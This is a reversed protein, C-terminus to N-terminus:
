DWWSMMVKLSDIFEEFWLQEMEFDLYSDNFQDLLKLTDEMQKKEKESDVYHADDWNNRMRKIQHEMLDLLYGFDWWNSQWIIPLWYILSKVGRKINRPAEKIKRIRWGM